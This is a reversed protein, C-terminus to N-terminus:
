FTLRRLRGLSICEARLTERQHHLHRLVDRRRQRFDFGNTRSIELSIERRQSGCTRLVQRIRRDLLAHLLLTCVFRFAACDYASSILQRLQPLENDLVVDDRDGARFCCEDLL